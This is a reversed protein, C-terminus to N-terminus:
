ATALRVSVVPPRPRATGVDNSIVRNDLFDYRRLYAAPTTPRPTFPDGSRWNLNRRLRHDVVDQDLPRRPSRRVQVPDRASRRAITRHAARAGVGTSASQREDGRRDISGTTSGESCLGAAASAPRVLWRGGVRRDLTSASTVRGAWSSGITMDPRM